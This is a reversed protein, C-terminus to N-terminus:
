NFLDPSTPLFDPSLMLQNLRTYQKELTSDFTKVRFVGSLVHCTIFVSNCIALAGKRVLFGSASNLIGAQNAHVALSLQRYDDDYFPLLGAIKSIEEIIKIRNRAKTDLPQPASYLKRIREAEKKCDNPSPRRSTSWMGRQLLLELKKSLEEYEFAIRQPGFQHDEMAAMLIFASELASRGFLVVGYQQRNEILILAAKAMEHVHLSHYLLFNALDAKKLVKGPPETAVHYLQWLVDKQETLLAYVEIVESKQDV